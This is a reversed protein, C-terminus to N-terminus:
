WFWYYAMKESIAANNARTDFSLYGGYDGVTSNEKLGRVAGHTRATNGDHGIFSFSGGTDAAGTEESAVIKLQTDYLSGSAGKIELNASPNTTGIGVNGNPQIRMKETGNTSFRTATNEYNWVLTEENSSIGFLSGNGGDEGTTSNTVHLYTGTSSSEHIQLKQDPSTTGIGLEGSYTLTMLNSSFAGSSWRQWILGETERINQLVQFGSAQSTHELLLGNNGDSHALHLKLDPSTTGIGVNGGNSILFEAGGTTTFRHSQGSQAAFYNYTGDAYMKLRATGSLSLGFASSSNGSAVDLKYLPSTTGIGVNGSSNVRAYETGNNQVILSHYGSPANITFGAGTQQITSTAAVGLRKIGITDEVELKYSPSATGIGVNGGNKQLLLNDAVGNDRVQIENTDFAMNVSSALGLMIYPDNVSLSSLGSGIGVHLTATPATTGIGVNGGTAITVYEKTGNAGLALRKGSLGYLIAKGTDWSLRGYDAAPGWSAVADDNIIFKNSVSFKTSPSTTGIGVNGASSISLRDAATQIM